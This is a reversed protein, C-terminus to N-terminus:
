FWGMVVVGSPAPAVAVARERAVLWLAVGAAVMAGGVAVCITSATASANAARYDRQAAAYDTCDSASACADHEADRDSRAVVGLVAGAAIAAIGTAGVLEGALARRHPPPAPVAFTAVVRRLAGDDLEVTQDIRQGDREFAFHHTGPDLAIAQGLAAPADDVSVRADSADGGGALQATAIATAISSEVQSAREACDRAIPAPCAAAGCALLHPRAAIFHRTLLLRQGAESEAICRDTPDGHAIATALMVAAAVARAVSVVEAV